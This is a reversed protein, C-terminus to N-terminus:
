IFFEWSSIKNSANCVEFSVVDSFEIITENNNEYVNSIHKRQM